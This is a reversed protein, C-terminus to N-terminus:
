SELLEINKQKRYRVYNSWLAVTLVSMLGSYVLLQTFTARSGEFGIFYLSFELICLINLGICAGVVYTRNYKSIYSVLSILSSAILLGGLIYYWTRLDSFAVEDILGVWGYISFGASFGVIHKLSLMRVCLVCM